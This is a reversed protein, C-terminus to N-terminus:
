GGWPHVKYMCIALSHCCYEDNGSEIPIVAIPVLAALMTYSMNFDFAQKVSLQM